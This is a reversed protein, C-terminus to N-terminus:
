FQQFCVLAALSFFQTHLWPHYFFNDGHLTYFPFAVLLCVSTLGVWGPVRDTAWKVVFPCIGCRGLNPARNRKKAWFVEHHLGLGAKVQNARGQGQGGTNM